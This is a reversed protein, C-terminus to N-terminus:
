QFINYILLIIHFYILGLVLAHRRGMNCLVVVPIVVHVNYWQRWATGYESATTGMLFSSWYLWQWLQPSVCWWKTLLWGCFGRYQIIKCLHTCMTCLELRALVDEWNHLVISYWTYDECHVMIWYVEENYKSTFDNYIGYWCAHSQYWAAVWVACIISIASCCVVKTTCKQWAPAAHLLLATCYIYDSHSNPTNINMMSSEM